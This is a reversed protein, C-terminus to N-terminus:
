SEVVLWDGSERREEGKEIGAMGGYDGKGWVFSERLGVFWVSFVLASM